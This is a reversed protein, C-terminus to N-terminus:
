LMERNIQGRREQQTLCERFLGRVAAPDDINEIPPGQAGSSVVKWIGNAFSREGGQCFRQCNSQCGFNNYIAQSEARNQGRGITFGSRIDELVNWGPAPSLFLFELLCKEKGQVAWGIDGALDDVDVTTPM